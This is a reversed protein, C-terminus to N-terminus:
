LNLILLQLFFHFVKKNKFNLVSSGTHNSNSNNDVSSDSVGVPSPAPVSAKTTSESSKASSRPKEKLTLCLSMFFIFELVSTPTVPAPRKKSERSAKQVSASAGPTAVPASASANAAGVYGRVEGSGEFPRAVEPPSQGPYQVGQPSREDNMYVPLQVPGYPSMYQMMQLQAADQAARDSAYGQPRGQVFSQNPARQQGHGPYMYASPMGQYYGAYSM